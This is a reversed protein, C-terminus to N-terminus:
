GIKADKSQAKRVKSGVILALAALIEVSLAMISPSLLSASISLSIGGVPLLPLVEFPMSDSVTKQAPSTTATSNWNSPFIQYLNKTITFNTAAYGSANTQQSSVLLQSGNPYDVQFAVLISQVPMDNYTIHAWLIVNMGLPFPVPCAVNRGVGGYKCFLDINWGTAGQVQPFMFPLICVGLSSLLFAIMLIRNVVGM